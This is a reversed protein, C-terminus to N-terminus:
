NEFYADGEKILTGFYGILTDNKLITHAFCKVKQVSGDPKLFRYIMEFNRSDEVSSDWEEKVRERDEPHIIGVWNSGLIESENRGLISCLSRGVEIARGKYDSKWYGVNTALAVSAVKVDLIEINDEIRSLQDKLSSGGNPRLEKLIAEINENGKDFHQEGITISAPSGSYVGNGNDWAFGTKPTTWNSAGIAYACKPNSFDCFDYDYGVGNDWEQNVKFLILDFSNARKKTAMTGNLLGTDFSATNTLRLTHKLKSLDTYTGNDYLDKLRTEDFHFLFRSYKEVGNLGGYFLEAVPNLGTNVSKNYVITNNKDFYTHIVM